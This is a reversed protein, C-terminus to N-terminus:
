EVNGPVISVEVTFRGALDRYNTAAHQKVREARRPSTRGGFVILQCYFYSGGKQRFHRACGDLADTLEEEGGGRLNTFVLIQKSEEESTHIYNRQYIYWLIKGISTALFHSNVCHVIPAPKLPLRCLAQRIDSWTGHEAISSSDDIVFLIEVNNAM